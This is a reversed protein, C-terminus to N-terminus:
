APEEAVQPASGGSDGGDKGDSRTRLEMGSAPTAIDSVVIREGGSLGVDVYVKEPGRYVVNVARIELENEPSMIWVTDNEHLHARDLAVVNGLPAGRIRGRLYAGVLMRPNKDLPQRVAVRLQAMRGESSLNPRIRVVEGTRTEGAGWVAPNSFVVKSGQGDANEAATIYQLKAPPVALEVFYRDTGVLEAITQGVSLQSGVEVDASRVVADFPARITTRDLNLQAEEVDARAAAVDARASELQPQRLVLAREQESLDEGLLKAETRAVAQNGQEIRLDAKAKALATEAQQLAIEYDRADLRALVDGEAVRGGGELEPSVWVVEGQVRPAVEVRDAPMVEGWAEVVATAPDRQARLVDVLVAQQERAGASRGAGPQTSMMYSVAAAAAGLAVLALLAQLIRVRVRRDGAAGADAAASATTRPADQVTSPERM